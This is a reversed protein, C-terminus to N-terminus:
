AEEGTMLESWAKYQNRFSLDSTGLATLKGDEGKDRGLGRRMDVWVNSNSKLEEQMRAYCDWDDPGVMSANSNILQSYLITRKLMEEGAGKLRFHWSEVICKDVALPRVVRVVQVADKATFSPYFITNHRNQSLIERARAEGYAKVMADSYGPIESYSTHISKRGGMYGHGHPLATVGMDDFFQYSSGFPFIIEAERPYPAGEALSAAYRRAAEGVSAHAVMPHMADNLNEMFMKWNCDHVYQLPGGAVELEGEPSRDAMNDLTAAADGLWTKLSPTDKSLCAFVFGRYSAVQAVKQMHFRPDALDFGTDAYGGRAPVGQLRGDLHYTWGHYPCRFGAVHGCVGAVVKAGKHGCRNYIVNVTGDKARVMVVGERGIQTTHFDGPKKVQSEHGVYVWARGWLRTMELEFIKEDLYVDRHLRDPEVLARIYDNDYDTM